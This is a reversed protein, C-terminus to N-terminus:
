LDCAERRPRGGFRLRLNKHAVSPEGFQAFNDQLGRGAAEAADMMTDVCDTLRGTM